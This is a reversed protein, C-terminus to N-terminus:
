RSQSGQNSGDHRPVQKVHQAAPLLLDGTNTRLKGLSVLRNLQAGEKQDKLSIITPNSPPKWRNEGPRNVPSLLLLDIHLHRSNYTDVELLRCSPASATQSRLLRLTLTTGSEMGFNDLREMDRRAGRRAASTAQGSAGQDVPQAGKSLAGGLEPRWTM